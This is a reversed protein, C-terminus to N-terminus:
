DGKFFFFDFNVGKTDSASYSRVLAGSFCQNTSSVSGISTAVEDTVFLVRFCCRDREGDMDDDCVGGCFRLRVIMSVFDGTLVELGTIGGGRGIGSGGVM